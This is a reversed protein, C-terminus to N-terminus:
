ADPDARRRTITAVDSEAELATMVRHLHETDSLEVEMLVRYYDPKRDAFELNSINAKREGILTCIRGLVGADNSM